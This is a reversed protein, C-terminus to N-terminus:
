EERQHDATVKEDSINALRGVRSRLDLRVHAQLALGRATETRGEAEAVRIRLQGVEEQLRAVALQLDRLIESM